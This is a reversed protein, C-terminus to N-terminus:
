QRDEYCDTVQYEPGPYLRRVDVQKQICETLTGTRYREVPVWFLGSHMMLTFVWTAIM